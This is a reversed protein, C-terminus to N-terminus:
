PRGGPALSDPAPPHSAASEDHAARHLPGPQQALRLLAVAYVAADTGDGHGLRTRVHHTLLAWAHSAPQDSALDRALRVDEDLAAEAVAIETELRAAIAPYRPDGTIDPFAPDTSM